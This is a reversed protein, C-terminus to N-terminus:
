VTRRFPIQPYTGATMYGGPEGLWQIETNSTDYQLAKTLHDIAKKVDEQKFETAGPHSPFLASNNIPTRSARPSPSALARHLYSVGLTEELSRVLKESSSTKAIRYAEEWEPLAEDIKGSASLLGAINQHVTAMEEADMTSRDRFCHDRLAQVGWAGADMRDACVQKLDQGWKSGMISRRFAQMFEQYGSADTTTRASSQSSVALLRTADASVAGGVSETGRLVKGLLAYGGPMKVVPTVQGPLLGKLHM